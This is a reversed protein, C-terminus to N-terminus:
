NLHETERQVLSKLNNNIGDNTLPTSPRQHGAACGHDVKKHFRQPIIIHETVARHLGGLHSSFPKERTTYRKAGRPRTSAPRPHPRRITRCSLRRKLLFSM